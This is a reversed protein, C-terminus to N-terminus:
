KKVHLSRVAGKWDKSLYECVCHSTLVHSSHKQKDKLHIKNLCLSIRVHQTELTMASQLTLLEPKQM